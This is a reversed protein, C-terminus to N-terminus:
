HVRAYDWIANGGGDRQLVQYELGGSPLGGSAGGAAIIWWEFGGGATGIGIAQVLKDDAIAEADASGDNDAEFINRLAYDATDQDHDAWSFGAGTKRQKKCTYVWRKNSGDQTSSVIRFTALRPMFMAPPQREGTVPRRQKEVWEVASRLRQRTQDTPRAM